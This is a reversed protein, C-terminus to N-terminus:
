EAARGLALQRGVLEAYLGGRALLEAHTGAEVLRGADLVAILEADRVTSLRHAIVITTRDRMLATLAHRVQAESIADLHSTAEDLVLVPANKLFARAIAVRQRQGGSLQVGREGVRTDLKAPLAAVFDALAARELAQAIEAEGAGPKALAVNARLTDNFLYTDQAVLAIRGRLDDLKYQRLDHGDLMIAGHTPDWFRLLLNALTTKGSGSPGVIALTAGPRINLDVGDLVLRATGPYHFDVHAIQIASGAGRAPLLASPPTGPGDNVLVPEDHVARLRHASAFTDALQRSVHAIESVPLFASTALLTLLPLWVGNFHGSAALLGGTLAVALGGFATATELQVDQLSIDHLVKLRLVQCDRVLAGFEDRRRAVAQFAVLEALGQITDTVHANLRGLAARAAAGLRDIRARLLVPAFVAFLLFPVLALATPWAFAALAALVATPVIIAVIAPAVTHAYFYEITEVDQTALAVLDGSRRRLLYGPALADLKRYLAIRMDALLHYAMAHAQWSEAWHLIGALPAAVALLILLDGYPRGTKLAAVILASIVGVGIYTAVRATGSFIVLALQRWWPAIFGLLAKITRGWDLHEVRLISDDAKGASEESAGAITEAIEVEERPAFPLTVDGREEAQAGMLQRYAGGLRMLEAHTGSEIVRGRDLVLIRDADIVSSLRHALILTTRGVMLRDLASQIIAENEADVSSLAEDLILIPADRLLARAIALRQRQGGSLRLGREGIVTAYGQPLATIFDHANAARAAAVIEARTADPKGLRLNDEVTGHFLYTDQRVVAIQARAANPDLSTLDVGGIRVSGAQPDYLRLLLAATTSKGSGSPGVIGVREGVKVDFSLGDLAQGRGGPYSFHVDAFAISPALPAAPRAGGKPMPAESGLLANIGIAAAQGVMGDHLVTRFDRLPRFIETGSMLVILLAQLTMEGHTVRYAGLAIAAAAGVGIGVDIIGRTILNTALMRMTAASLERAKNGLMRGYATSQGFAKLTALGQIADLFEAGFSKLAARHAFSVKSNLRNFTAPLVLCVLAFCLMLAAVPVDWFAIIAFMALPTLAAIALQPVYQGFFSQLQEVGDVVSLMVGGTREGAFWAPGLETVKDYLKLRLIEQVRAATRHAAMTREHELFGRVLVVAAVATAPWILATAPAGRYVLALLTGLFVFRSVGVIAAVLGMLVTAAIRWRMGRTLQWLRFDFYLPTEEKKKRRLPGRLSGRWYKM